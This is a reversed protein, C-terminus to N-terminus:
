RRWSASRVLRRLSGLHATIRGDAASITILGYANTETRTALLRAGDPSWDLPTARVDLVRESSGDTGLIWICDLTANTPCSSTFFLERGDPSFRPGIATSGFNGRLGRKLTRAASGDIGAVTLEYEYYGWETVYAITAGDPSVDFDAVGPVGLAVSSARPAAGVDLRYIGFPYNCNWPCDYPLIHYLQAGDASLAPQVGRAMTTVTGADTDAVRVSDGKVFAFTGRGSAWRPALGDLMPVLSAEGFYDTAGLLYLTADGALSVLIPSPLRACRVAFAVDLTDSATMTVERSAADAQCNPQLEDLRVTLRAGDAWSGV